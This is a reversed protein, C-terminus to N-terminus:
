NKKILKYKRKKTLMDAIKQPMITQHKINHTLLIFHITDILTTFFNTTNGTKNIKRIFREKIEKKIVKRNKNLISKLEDTQLKQYITKLTTTIIDDLIIFLYKSHIEYYDNYTTTTPILLDPINAIWKITNQKYKKYKDEMADNYRIPSLFKDCNYLNEEKLLRLYIKIYDNNIDLKKFYNKSM